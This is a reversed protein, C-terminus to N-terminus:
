SPAVSACWGPLSDTMDTAAGITQAALASRPKQCPAPAEIAFDLADHIARPLVLVELYRGERCRGLFLLGEHRRARGGVPARGALVPGGLRGVPRHQQEVERSEAM